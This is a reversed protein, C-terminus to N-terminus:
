GGRQRKCRSVPLVDEWSRKQLHFVVLLSEEAPLLVPLHEM